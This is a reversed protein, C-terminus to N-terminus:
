LLTIPKIMYYWRMPKHVISRHNISSLPSPLVDLRYPTHFMTAALIGGELVYWGDSETYNLYPTASILWQIWM